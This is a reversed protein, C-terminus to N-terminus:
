PKTTPTAAPLQCLPRPCRNALKLRRPRRDVVAVYKRDSRSIITGAALRPNFGMCHHPPAYRYFEREKTRDADDMPKPAIRAQPRTSVVALIDAM